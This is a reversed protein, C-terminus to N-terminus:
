EKNLSRSMDENALGLAIKKDRLQAFFMRLIGSSQNLLCEVEEVTLKDWFNPEGAATFIQALTLNTDGFEGNWYRQMIENYEQVHNSLDM